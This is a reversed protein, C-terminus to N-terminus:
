KEKPRLAAITIGIAVAILIRAWFMDSWLTVPDALGWAVVILMSVIAHM